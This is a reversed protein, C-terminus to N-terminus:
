SEAPVTEFKNIMKSFSPGCESEANCGTVQPALGAQRELHPRLLMLVMWLVPSICCRLRQPLGPSNVGARSFSGQLLLTRTLTQPM